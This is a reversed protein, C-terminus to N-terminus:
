DDEFTAMLSSQLVELLQANWNCSYYMYLDGGDISQQETM